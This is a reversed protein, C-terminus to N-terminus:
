RAIHRGGMRDHQKMLGKYIASRPKPMPIMPAIDPPHVAIQADGTEAQPYAPPASRPPFLPPPAYTPKAFAPKAPAAPRPPPQVSPWFGSPAPRTPVTQPAAGAGQPRIQAQARARSLLDAAKTM